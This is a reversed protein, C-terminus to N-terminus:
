LFTNGSLRLKSKKSMSLSPQLNYSFTISSRITPDLDIQSVMLLLFSGVKAFLLLHNGDLNSLLKYIYFCFRFRHRSKCNSCPWSKIYVQRTIKSLIFKWCNWSWDKCPFTVQNSGFVFRFDSRLHEGISFIVSLDVIVESHEGISFM